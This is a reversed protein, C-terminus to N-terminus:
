LLVISPTTKVHLVFTPAMVEAPMNVACVAGPEPYTLALDPVIVPLELTFTITPGTFLITTVGFGAIKVTPADCDNVAVANSM